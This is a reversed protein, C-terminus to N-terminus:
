MYWRQKQIKRIMLDVIEDRIKEEALIDDLIKDQTIRAGMQMILSKKFDSIKIWVVCILIFGFVIRVVERSEIRSLIFYESGAPTSGAIEVTLPHRGLGSSWSLM